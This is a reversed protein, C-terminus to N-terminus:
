LKLYWTNLMFRTERPMYGRSSEDPTYNAVYSTKRDREVPKRKNRWTGYLVAVGLAASSVGVKGEFM